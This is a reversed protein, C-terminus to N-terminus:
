SVRTQVGHNETEANIKKDIPKKEVVYDGSQKLSEVYEYIKLCAWADTAAYLKQKDNLVDAEWNSLRQAKSIRQGFLIAYVRQLSKDDIGFEGVYQQLELFAGPEFDSRKHLAGFDDKLSLGIKMVRKDELFRQLSAPLGIYNLRFLFCVEDTSVQLLAVKHNRGSVFSPRTETDVGVMSYNMLYAVAKDTDAETQITVIRGGFAAVPLTSVEQKAITNQIIKSM